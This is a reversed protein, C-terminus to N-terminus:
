EESKPKGEASKEEDSSGEPQDPASAPSAEDITETQQEASANLEQTVTEQPVTEQPV